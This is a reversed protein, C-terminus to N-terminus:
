ETKGEKGGVPRAADGGQAVEAREKALREERQAAEADAIQALFWKISAWLAVSLTLLAVVHVNGRTAVLLAALTAFLAYFSANMARLLGQNTGPTFISDVIDKLTSSM